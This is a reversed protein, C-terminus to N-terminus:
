NGTNVSREAQYIQNFIQKVLEDCVCYISIIQEELM